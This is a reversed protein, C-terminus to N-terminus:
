PRAATGQRATRWGMVSIERDDPNAGRSAPQISASFEQGRQWGIATHSEDEDLVEIWRM